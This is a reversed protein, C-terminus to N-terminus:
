RGKASSPRGAVLTRELTSCSSLAGAALGVAALGVAAAGRLWWRQRKMAMAQSGHAAGGLLRCASHGVPTARASRSLCKTGPELRNRGIGAASRAFVYRPDQRRM